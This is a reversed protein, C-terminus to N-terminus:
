KVPSKFLPKIAEYEKMMKLATQIEPPPQLYKEQWIKHNMLFVRVDEKYKKVMDAHEQDYYGDARLKNKLGEAKLAELVSKFLEKGIKYPHIVDEMYQGDPVRATILQAIGAKMADIM